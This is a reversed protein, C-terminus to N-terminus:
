FLKIFVETLSNFNEYFRPEFGETLHFGKKIDKQDRNRHNRKAYIPINQFFFNKESDFEILWLSSVPFIM